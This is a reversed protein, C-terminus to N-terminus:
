REYIRFHGIFPRFRAMIEFNCSFSQCYFFVFVLSCISYSYRQQHAAGKLDRACMKCTFQICITAFPFPKRLHLRSWCYFLVYLVQSWRQFQRKGTRMLDNLFDPCNRKINWQIKPPNISQQKHFHAKKNCNKIIVDVVIFDSHERDRVTINTHSM